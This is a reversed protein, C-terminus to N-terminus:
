AQASRQADTPLDLEDKHRLKPPPEGEVLRFDTQIGFEEELYQSLQGFEEFCHDESIESFSSLGDLSLTFTICGRDLTDVKFDIRSGREGEKEFHPGSEEEFGMEACVQRLAKLLYLRKQHKDEQEEAWKIRKASKDEVEGLLKELPVYQEQSLLDRAEGLSREWEQMDGQSVWLRALQQRGIYVSDAEAVRKALRKGMEDAKQTFAVALAEHIRRGQTAARELEAQTSRYVALDTNMDLGDISPLKAQSLWQKAQLVEGTFTSRLGESAGDLLRAVREKLGSAEAHLNRVGQGLRLKEERERQLQFESRKRGSM